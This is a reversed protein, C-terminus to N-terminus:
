GRSTAVPAFLRSLWRTFRQVIHLADISNEGSAASPTSTAGAEQPQQTLALAILVCAARKVLDQLRILHTADPANRGKRWETVANGTVGLWRALKSRGGSHQIASEVLAIIRTKPTM